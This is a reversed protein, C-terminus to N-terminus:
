RAAQAPSPLSKVFRRDPLRQTLCSQPYLGYRRVPEGVMSQVTVGGRGGDDFAGGGAPNFM